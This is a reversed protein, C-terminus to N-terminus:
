RLQRYFRALFKIHVKIYVNKRFTRKHAFRMAITKVIFHSIKKEIKGYHTVKTESFPFYKIKLGLLLCCIGKLINLDKILDNIEEQVHQTKQLTM